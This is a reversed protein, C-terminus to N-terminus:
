SQLSLARLTVLWPCNDRSPVNKIFSIVRELFFKRFKWFLILVVPFSLKWLERMSREELYKLMREFVLHGRFPCDGQPTWIGSNLRFTHRKIMADNVTQSLPNAHVNHKIFRYFTPWDHGHQLDLVLLLRGLLHELLWRRQMFAISILWSCAIM